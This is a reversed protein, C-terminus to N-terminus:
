SDNSDKPENELSFLMQGESLNGVFLLFDQDEPQLLAESHAEQLRGRYGDVLVVAWTPSCVGARGASAQLRPHSTM